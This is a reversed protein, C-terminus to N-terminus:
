TSKVDLSMFIMILMTIDMLKMFRNLILHKWTRGTVHENRGNKRSQNFSYDM